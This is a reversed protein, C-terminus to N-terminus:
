GLDAPKVKASEVQLAVTKVDLTSARKAVLAAARRVGEADVEKDPGLGVLLLREKGLAGYVLLSERAAAKWEKRRLLAAATKGAESDLKLSKGEPLLVAVLDSRAADASTS